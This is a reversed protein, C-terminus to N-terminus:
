LLGGLYILIVCLFNHWSHMIISCLINDTEYYCRALFFGLSAYPIAYIFDGNFIVHMLGFLLASILCYININSSIEKISARFTIEETIPALFITAFISYLPLSYLLTRNTEENVPLQKTISSIITNTLMMILLGVLWYKFILSLYKSFNNKFDQFKNKFCQKYIIILVICTIIPAVLNLLNSTWFNHPIPLKSIILSIIINLFLYIIIGKSLQIYKKIKMKNEGNKILYIM